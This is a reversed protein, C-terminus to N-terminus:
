KPVTRKLVLLEDRFDDGKRVITRLEPYNEVPFRGQPRTMVRRVVVADPEVRWILEAKFGRATLSRNRPPEPPAYGAPLKFRITEDHAYRLTSIIDHERKPSAMTQSASLLSLPVLLQDGDQTAFGPVNFTFSNKTEGAKPDYEGFNFTELEAQQARAHVFTEALKRRPDIAVARALLGMAKAENAHAVVSASVHLDGSAELTADYVEVIENPRAAAGQTEALDTEVPMKTSDQFFLMAQVGRTEDPLEGAGCYECSPDIWLARTLGPQTPVFVLM